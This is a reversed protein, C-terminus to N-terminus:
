LPFCPAPSRSTSAAKTVPIRSVTFYAATSSPCHVSSRWNDLSAPMPTVVCQRFQPVPDISNGSNMEPCVLLLMTTVDLLTQGQLQENIRCGSRPLQTNLGNVLKEVSRRLAPLDLLKRGPVTVVM